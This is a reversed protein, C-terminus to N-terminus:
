RIWGDKEAKTPIEEFFPANKSYRAVLVYPTIHNFRIYAYIIYRGEATEVDIPSSWFEDLRKKAHVRRQPYRSFLFANIRAFSRSSPSIWSKM